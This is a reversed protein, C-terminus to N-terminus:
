SVSPVSELLSDVSNVIAIVFQDLPIQRWSEAVSRNYAKFIPALKDALVFIERDYVQVKNISNRIAAAERRLTDLENHITLCQKM